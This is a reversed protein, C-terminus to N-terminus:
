AGLYQFLAPNHESLMTAVSRYRDAAPLVTYKVPDAEFLAVITDEFWGNGFCHSPAPAHGSSDTTAMATFESQPVGQYTSLAVAEAQNELATIIAKKLLAM